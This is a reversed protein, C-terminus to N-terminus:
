SPSEGGNGGDNVTRMKDMFAKGLPKNPYEQREKRIRMAKNSKSKKSYIRFLELGDKWPIQFMDGSYGTLSDQGFHWMTVTWSMHDPIRPKLLSSPSNGRTEPEDNTGGVDVAGFGHLM